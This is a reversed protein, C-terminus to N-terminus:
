DEAIDTIAGMPCAAQCAGCAICAEENVVEAGDDGFDLVEMPCAGICAGCSVCTDLDIVPHSM